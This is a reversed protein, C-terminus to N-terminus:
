QNKAMEIVIHRPMSRETVVPHPYTEKALNPFNKAIYEFLYEGEDTKEKQSGQLASTIINPPTASNM